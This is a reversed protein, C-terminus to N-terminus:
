RRGVPFAAPSDRVLRWRWALAVLTVGVFATACEGPTVGCWSQLAIAGAGVVMSLLVPGVLTLPIPATVRSWDRWLLTCMPLCAFALTMPLSAMPRQAPALAVCLLLAVCWCALFRALLRRAVSRNLAAGRPMGPILMLLAQERRTHHLASRPALGVAALTNLAFVSLPWVTNVGRHSDVVVGPRLVLIVLLTTISGYVVAGGLVGSWHFNPGLGMLGRGLVSGSRQACVRALRQRYLATAFGVLRDGILGSQRWAEQPRGSREAFRRKIRLRYNRQHRADGDQILHRVSWWSAAALAITVVVVFSEPQSEWAALIADEAAVVFPANAWQARTLPVIWGLMGLAPMRVTWAVALLTAVGIFFTLVGHDFAAGILTVGAAIAVGAGLLVRRLVRAQGPVLRAAHPENQVLLSNVLWVWFAGLWAVLESALLWLLVNSPWRLAGVLPLVLSVAMLVYWLWQSGQHRYQRWPALLVQTWGAGANM